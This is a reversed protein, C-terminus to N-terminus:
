QKFVNIMHAVNDKHSMNGCHGGKPYIKARDGFVRPFFDIEGPALIIDDQNHMVEIKDSTKLYSELAELNMTSAFGERDLEPNQAKYYPYFFGHFYDTFGLQFTADMYKGPSSSSGMTVNKPVVFGQKTIVDSTYILSASSIRFSVGILAALEENNPDVADYAQYLFEGDMEVGDSEKYANGVEEVLANFFQEFNDVGGPINQSMRDLLSISNYLSVPPNILLAKRFNFTKREEDLKTVFAANFGGLSYGAVYFDSVEIDGQYRGWLKEMVRYIDKADEYAHGPVSTKSASVIFNMFTPSSISVVHFGANHYARAMETNKAGNHSAGTGAILFVLPSKEKQWAYSYRLEEDFFFPEPVERDEFIRIRGMKLPNGEPLEAKVEPLTGIVTAEYPSYEPSLTPFDYPKQSAAWGVTSFLGAALVVLAKKM